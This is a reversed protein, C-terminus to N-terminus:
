HGRLDSNEQSRPVLVALAGPEVTLLVPTSHRLPEGDIAVPLPGDPSEIRVWPTTTQLVEGIPRSRRLSVRMFEGLTRLRGAKPLLYLNLLGDDIRAHPSIRFGGGYDRTNTVALFMLPGHFEGEPWTVRVPQPRYSWLARLSAFFYLTKSRPRGSHYVIELAKHDFGVSAVCGFRTASGDQWVARGVDVHRTIGNRLVDCAKEVALPIGLDRAFDNGTGTPVIALPVRNRGELANLTMTVTGDGGAIALVDLDDDQAQRVLDRWHDASTSEVCDLDSAHKADLYRRLQELGRGARSSPNILLRIRRTATKTDQNPMARITM